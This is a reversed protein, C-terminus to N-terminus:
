PRFYVRNGECHGNDFCLDVWITDLGGPRNTDGMVFSFERPSGLRPSKDDATRTETRGVQAGDQWARFQAQTTGPGTDYVWGHVTATRNHWTITGFTGLSSCAGVCNEFSRVDDAANATGPATTAVAMTALVGAALKKIM